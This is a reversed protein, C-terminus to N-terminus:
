LFCLMCQCSTVANLTENKDKKFETRIFIDNKIKMIKTLIMSLFKLEIEINKISWGTIQLRQNHSLCVSFVITSSTDKEM